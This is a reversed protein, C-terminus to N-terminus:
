WLSVRWPRNLSVIAPRIEWDTGDHRLWHVGGRRLDSADIIPGAGAYCFGPAYLRTILLGRGCEEAFADAALIHVVPQGGTDALCAISDCRLNPAAPAIPTDFHDAWAEVAFSNARGAILAMGDDTRVAIAQTTDAILIDPRTDFGFLLVLPIVALPGALRERGRLVAFWALGALGFLLAAPKLIPNGEIASSWGTVLVATDVMREIGWGTVLLFPAEMNFLMALVSLAGFPMIVFSLVPLVMVNALVSLPATQQFHYASFLVTALGAILSTAAAAVVFNVVREFRGETVLRPQRHALEWVGVLAVVASFSLQFSARFVNAPDILVILLAAIAVNRMSLAKRGVLVAGFVLALMLTSRFAPVNAIGGALLLYLGAAVIGVIAALPKAPVYRGSMAGLLALLLRAIAYAGGAVISLHLGSISYIHALGSVAMVERTEDSIRSQDGITMAIAIAATQDPLVAEIRRAIERRMSEAGGAISWAATTETVVFDGIVSGYAGIGRFYAHFQGDFSGPLVPGPVPALRIRASFRDGARLSMTDDMVLRARRVPAERGDDRVLGSVVIRREGAGESLIEEVVGTFSGAMPFALMQTGFLAGHIPLLMLGVCFGAAVLAVHRFRVAFSAAVALGVLVLAASWFALANPEDLLIAYAILGAVLAFPMLIFIRRHELADAFAAQLHALAPNESRASRGWPVTSGLAATRTPLPAGLGSM